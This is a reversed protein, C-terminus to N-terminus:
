TLLKALRKERQIALTEESLQKFAAAKIGGAENTLEAPASSKAEGKEIKEEEGPGSSASWVDKSDDALRREPSKGELSKPNGSAIVNASIQGARINAWELICKKVNELIGELDSESAYPFFNKRPRNSWPMPEGLKGYPRVSNLAENVADFIAKNHIHDSESLLESLNSDIAM